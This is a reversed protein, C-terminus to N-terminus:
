FIGIFNINSKTLNYKNIIFSTHRRFLTYLEGKVNDPHNKQYKFNSNYDCLSSAITNILENLIYKDNDTIVM